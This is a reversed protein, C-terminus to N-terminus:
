ARCTVTFGEVLGKPKIMKSARITYKGDYEKDIYEKVLKRDNTHFYLFDGTALKIYYVAPHNFDLDSFQEFTVLTTRLQKTM